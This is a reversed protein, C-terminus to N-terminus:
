RFGMVQLVACSAGAAVIGTACALMLARRVDGGTALPPDSPQGIWIDTVMEGSRWIPGVLRRQLAGAVAAESWGSNPSPLRGHQALAIRLAKPGSCGPLIAAVAAILLTTLRAPVFNMVDDLRAGCWGFRLYRPTKYGVMSDMTSVVKFFLLLPLGGVVYWFVASTFGDVLNESVSEVAARRCASGDMPTTDRGVLCSVAVHANALDDRQVAREIRWAHRVLDGLALLSYLMFLHLGQATLPSAESVASVLLSVGGVWIASLMGCLLIGGAYGDAGAWRLVRETLALSAGM